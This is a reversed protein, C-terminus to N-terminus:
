ILAYTTAEDWSMHRGEDFLSHFRETDLQDRLGAIERSHAVVKAPPQPTDITERFTSASGHLRVAREPQGAAHAVAALGELCEIGDLRNGGDRCLRLSERYDAVARKLDGEAGKVSARARMALAIGWPDNLARFLELSEDAYAHADSFRDDSCEVSALNALAIGVGKDDGLERHLLISERYLDAARESDGQWRAAEGMNVLSVATGRKDGLERKIKLSEEHLTLAQRYDGREQALTGLNNLTAGASVRDDAEQFYTLAREHLVRSRELNSQYKAVNALHSYTVAVGRVNGLQEFAALAQEAAETAVDYDGQEILLICARSLAKARLELSVPHGRAAEAAFLSDFWRRGEAPYSRVLWFRWLASAIRFGVEVDGDQSSWLLGARVNSHEHELREMGATQGPGTLQPEVDEVLLAYYRAHANALQEVENRAALQEHAYERVTELMRFRPEADDREDLRVLSQEVLVAMGDLVGGEIDGSADCVAEAADLSWGGAFIALRAFLMQYPPSLLDRSWELTPRLAQHREELDRTGRTLLTLRSSLRALLARPPLIPIRSAALELALPLGDLHYCIEAIAPANDRTMTFGAQVAKAKLCFLAVADYEAIAELAPLLEPDPSALPPVDFVNERAVRLSARSTILITLGPCHDLLDAVVAHAAVLHEFNDLVLLTEQSRLAEHVREMLSLPGAEGVGLLGAIAIPVGAVSRVPALHVVHVGDPFAIRVQEAVFLALRTKGVGGTGKLTLLRVDSRQVLESVVEVERTRGVFPTADSIAGPSLKHQARGDSSHGPRRAARELAPREEPPVELAEMLLRVTIRRPMHKVGRELDSVVRASLGAHEALEEQTLGAAMRYRRLTEGFQESSLVPM